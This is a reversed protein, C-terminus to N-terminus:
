SAESIDSSAYSFFIPSRKGSTKRSVLRRIRRRCLLPPLCGFDKALSIVVDQDHKVFRNTAAQLPPPLEPSSASRGASFGSCRVTRERAGQARDYRSERQRLHAALTLGMLLISSRSRHCAVHFPSPISDGSASRYSTM